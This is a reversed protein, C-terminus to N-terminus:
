IYITDIGITSLESSVTVTSELHVKKNFRTMNINMLSWEFASLDGFTPRVSLHAVDKSWWWWRNGIPQVQNETNLLPTTNYSRKEINFAFNYGSAGAMESAMVNDGKLNTTGRNTVSNDFQLKKLGRPRIIYAEPTGTIAATTSTLRVGNAAIVHLVFGAFIFNAGSKYYLADGRAIKASANIFKSTGSLTGTATATFLTGVNNNSAGYITFDTSGSVVAGPTDGIAGIIYEVGKVIGNTGATLEYGDLIQGNNSGSFYVDTAGSATNNITYNGVRQYIDGTATSSYASLTYPQAYKIIMTEQLRTNAGTGWRVDGWKGSTGGRYKLDQYRWTITNLKKIRSTSISNFTSSWKYPQYALPGIGGEHYFGGWWRDDLNKECTNMTLYINETNLNTHQVTNPMSAGTIGQNNEMLYTPLSSSFFTDTGNGHFYRFNPSFAQTNYDVSSTLGFHTWTPRIPQAAMWISNGRQRGWNISLAGSSSLGTMKVGTVTRGFNGVWGFSGYVGKGNNLTRNQYWSNWVTFPAFEMSGGFESHMFRMSVPGDYAFLDDSHSILIDSVSFWDTPSAHSSYLINDPSDLTINSYGDTDVTDVTLVTGSVLKLTPKPVSFLLKQGSTFGGLYNVDYEFTERSFTSNTTLRSKLYIDGGSITEIYISEDPLNTAFTLTQGNTLGGTSINASLTISTDSNVTEITTGNVINTGSVVDGTNLAVTSSLTVVKQAAAAIATTNITRTAVFRSNTFDYDVTKIDSANNTNRLSLKPIFSTIGGTSNVASIYLVLDGPYKPNNFNFIAGRIILYDNVAYGTGPNDITLATVQGTYGSSNSITFSIVANEATNIPRGQLIVLSSKWPDSTNQVLNNSGDFYYAGYSTNPHSGVGSPTANPSPTAFTPTIGYDIYYTKGNYVYSTIPAPTSLTNGDYFSNTGSTNGFSYNDSKVGSKDTYKRHTVTYTGASRFKDQYGYYPIADTGVFGKLADGENLSINTINIYRRNGGVNRTNRGIEQLLTNAEYTYKISDGSKIRGSRNPLKIQSQTATLIPINSNQYSGGSRPYSWGGMNISIFGFNRSDEHSLCEPNANAGDTATGGFNIPDSLHLRVVNDGSIKQIDSIRSKFVNTFRDWPHGETNFAPVIYFETGEPINALLPNSIIFTVEEQSTFTVSENTINATANRNLTITYTYNGVTGTRSVSSIRTGTPLNPHIVRLLPVLGFAVSSAGTLTFTKQGSAITINATGSGTSTSGNLPVGRLTDFGSTAEIISLPDVYGFISATSKGATFTNTINAIQNPSALNQIILRGSTENTQDDFDATALKTNIISGFILNDGIRNTSSPSAATGRPAGVRFKYLKPYSDYTENTGRRLWSHSINRYPLSVVQGIEFKEADESLTSTSSTIDVYARNTTTIGTHTFYPNSLTNYGIASIRKYTSATIDVPDALRIETAVLNNVSITPTAVTPSTPNGPELNETIDLGDWDHIYSPWYRTNSRTLTVRYGILNNVYTKTFDCLELEGIECRGADPWYKLINDDEFLDFRTVREGSALFRNYNINYSAEELRVVLSTRIDESNAPNVYQYIGLYPKGTTSRAIKYNQGGYQIYNGPAIISKARQLSSKIGTLSTEIFNNVIFTNNAVVNVIEGPEFMEYDVDSVQTRVRATPLVTIEYYNNGTSPYRLVDTPNNNLGLSIIDFSLINGSGDTELLGKIKDASTQTKSPNTFELTNLNGSSTRGISVVGTGKKVISVDKASAFISKKQASDYGLEYKSYSNGDANSIKNYRTTLTALYNFRQSPIFNTLLQLNFGSWDTVSQATSDVNDYEISGSYTIEFYAVSSQQYFKFTLVTALVSDVNGGRVIKTYNPYINKAILESKDQEPTTSYPLTFVMTKSNLVKSSDPHGGSTGAAINVFTNNFRLNNGDLTSVATASYSINQTTFKEDLVVTDKFSTNNTDYKPIASITTIPFTRSDYDVRKGSPLFNPELYLNNSKSFTTYYKFLIDDKSVNLRTFKNDGIANIITTGKPEVLDVSHGYGFKNSANLRNASSSESTNSAASYLLSSWDLILNGRIRVGNIYIQGNNTSIIGGHYAGGYTNSIDSADSMAGITVDSLRVENSSGPIGNIKILTAGLNGVSPLAASPFKKRTIRYSNAYNIFVKRGSTTIGSGSLRYGIGSQSLNYKAIREFETDSVFSTTRRRDQGITVGDITFTQGDLLGAGNIDSYGFSFESMISSNVGNNDPHPAVSSSNIELLYYRQNQRGYLRRFGNAFVPITVSYEENNNGIQVTIATHKAMNGWEPYIKKTPTISGITITINNTTTGGLSTGPITLTDGVKYGSGAAAVTVSTYAGSVREVNFSAGSSGATGGTAAVALYTQSGSIANGLRSFSNVGGFSASPNLDIVLNITDRQYGAVIGFIEPTDYVTDDYGEGSSTYSKPLFERRKELCWNYTLSVFEDGDRNTFVLYVGDSLDTSSTFDIDESASTRSDTPDYLGCIIEISTLTTGTFNKKIDVVKTKKTSATVTGTLSDPFYYLTTGPIVYEKLWNFKQLDSSNTFNSATFVFKVFRADKSLYTTSDATPSNIVGSSDTLESNNVYYSLQGEGTTATTYTTHFALGGKIGATTAPFGNSQKVYWAKRVRRRAVITSYDSSYSNDLIENRTIAENIGLFHVNSIKLGGTSTINDGISSVYLNDTRGGWTNSFGPSRFFSVSDGSKVESLSYGGIRGASQKAFEKSYQETTSRVGSGNIVLKCPFDAGTLRYYGSKMILEVEDTAGFAQDTAFAAVQNLNEFPQFTKVARKTQLNAGLAKSTVPNPVISNTYTTDITGTYPVPKEPLTYLTASEIDVDESISEVDPIFASEYTWKDGYSAYTICGTFYIKTNSDNQYTKGSDSKSQTDVRRLLCLQNTFSTTKYYVFTTYIINSSVSNRITVAGREPIANWFTSSVDIRVSTDHVPTDLINSTVNQGITGSVYQTDTVIADDGIVSLISSYNRIITHLNYQTPSPLVSRVYEYYSMYNQTSTISVTNNTYDVDDYQLSINITPNFYYKVGSIEIYDESTIQAITMELDIRGFPPLGSTDVLTLRDIAYFNTQNTATTFTAGTLTVQTGSNVTAITAEGVINTGNFQAIKMGVYMSSTSSVTLVGGTTLSATFLTPSVLANSSSLQKAGLFTRSLPEIYIRNNDLNVNSASLIKKKIRWADLFKPSVYLRDNTDTAIYGTKEPRAGKTFGYGDPGGEPFKEGNLIKTNAIYMRDTVYLTQINARDSVTLRATTFFNTLGKLLNQSATNKSTTSIVNVVSNAIRNEIDSIDVSNSESSKRVKPVNLTTSSQGGAQIVQNGIYFDGASNTGSSAVFGGGNEYGQVIFQEYAKLVRTQLNPFGTSYNGPGIGIYEWTHSSARLISPRYLPVTPALAILIDSENDTVVGGSISTTSSSVCVIKRFEADSQIGYTNTDDSAVFTRGLGYRYSTGYINFSNSIPSFGSQGNRSDWVAVPSVAISTTTADTSTAYCLNLAKTLRHVAEATISTMAPIESFPTTSQSTDYYKKNPVSVDKARYGGTDLGNGFNFEVMCRSDMQPPNWLVRPNTINGEENTSPYLYNVNSQVRYNDDNKYLESLNDAIIKQYSDSRTINIPSNKFSASHGDIFKDVDARLVTLYYVGDRIGREWSDIEQVDYVTFRYNTYPIGNADNGVATGKIIFRKEPPKPTTTTNKPIVYKVRWLLDNPSSGRSDVFKASTISGPFSDWYTLVNIDETVSVVQSTGDKLTETKTVFVTEVSQSFLFNSVYTRSILEDPNIKFYVKQRSPDWFYGVRQSNNPVSSVSDGLGADLEVVAEYISIGGNANDVQNSIKCDAANIVGSSNFHERFLNYNNNAGFTLFRKTILLTVTGTTAVTPNTTEWDATFSVGVSNSKAGITTFDTNGLTTIEYTNGKTISSMSIPTNSSAINKSDIVLEPIDDEKLVGPIDLYLRFKNGGFTSFNIKAQQWDSEAKTAAEGLNAKWTVTSNIPYIETYQSTKSIGAPPILATIKGSASPGDSKFKNGIARLSIQGFNSNSNTISMDGGNVAMFQDAYGVAFVSVVQIFAGESAKIHFHRWDHKYEADPDAYIPGRNSVSDDQNALNRITDGTAFATSSDTYVKGTANRPQWYANADKQLSIGTFQAVVMSKFSNDKVKSGDTHMGCLGFVSRLSCNFIYPSCSNVTDITTKRSVDGVIEYEETRAQRSNGGDFTTDWTDIKKYYQDLEGDTTRQDAYTFAVVKHHSYATTSAAVFTPVGGSYSVSKFPNTLSDKFTMQWFYCGGTVKFIATQEPVGPTKNYLTTYTNPNDIIGNVITTLVAVASDVTTCDGNVSYDTGATFTTRSITKGSTIETYGYNTGTTLTFVGGAPTGSVTSTFWNHAAKIMLEKAYNFATKTATIESANNLFNNTTGNTYFEGVIFSNSNGGTRIDTVVGDIFYGIDRICLSKQAATLGTYGALTSIYLTTQEQIYGRNKSIMSAADYLVNSIRLADGTDGGELSGPEPVYKPRIVTKRLDYGVISTGRPVIVGGNKPNFKYLETEFSTFTLNSTGIVGPRNDITYDGPMVMITFAEFKDNNLTVTGTGIGQATALFTLGAVNASAGILTFDTNGVTTITYNKGLELTSASIPALDAVYSKRSAELLAREITKFPKNVNGGDNDVADTANLDSQNVYLMINRANAFDPNGGGLVTNNGTIINGDAKFTLRRQGATAISLENTASQYIGTGTDSGNNFSFAPSTPTNNNDFKIVVGPAIGGSTVRTLAM